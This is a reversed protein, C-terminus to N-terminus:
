RSTEEPNERDDPTGRDDPGSLRFTPLTHTDFVTPSLVVRDGIRPEHSGPGVLDTVLRVGPADDLDVLAVTYPAASGSPLFDREVRTFTHITGTGRVDRWEVGGPHGCPCGSTPYWQWVSCEPCRPLALGGRAAADWFPQLEPLDHPPAFQPVHAAADATPESM